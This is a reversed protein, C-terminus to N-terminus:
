LRRPPPQRSAELPRRSANRTAPAPRKRRRVTLVPDHDRDERGEEGHRLGRAGTKFDYQHEMGALLATDKNLFKAGHFKTELQGGKDGGWTLKQQWRLRVDALTEEM